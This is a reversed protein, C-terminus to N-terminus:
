NTVIRFKDGVTPLNPLTYGSKLGIVGGSSTYAGIPKVSGANPGTLFEVLADQWHNADLNSLGTSFLTTTLTGAIVAGYYAPRFPDENVVMVPVERPEMNTGTFVFTNIGLVVDAAVPRYGRVGPANTDDVATFSGAGTAATTVGAQKVKVAIASNAIDTSIMRHQLNTGLVSTFPIEILASSGSTLEGLRIRQM